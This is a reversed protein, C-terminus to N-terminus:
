LQFTQYYFTGWDRNFLSYPVRLNDIAGDMNYSCTDIHLEVQTHRQVPQLYVCCEVRDCSSPVHCRVKDTDNISTLTDNPFMTCESNSFYFYEYKIFIEVYMYLYVSCKYSVIEFPNQNKIESILCLYSFFKYLILKSM